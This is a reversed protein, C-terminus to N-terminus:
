EYTEYRSRSKNKRVQKVLNSWAFPNIMNLINVGQTGGYYGPRMQNRISYRANEKSSMTSSSLLKNLLQPSLNNAMRNYQYQDNLNLALFAQKFLEETPYPFIEVIPLYITDEVLEVIMTISQKESKPVVLSKKKYGLANIVVTDGVLTPMSFFGIENTTTGRGAKPVYITVGPIGYLSDGGVVMGSFQVINLSNQASLGLAFFMMM